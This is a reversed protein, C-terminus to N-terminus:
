EHKGVGAGAYDDDQLQDAHVEPVLGQFALASVLASGALVPLLRKKFGKNFGQTSLNNLM